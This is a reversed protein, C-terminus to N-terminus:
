IAHLIDSSDADFEAFLQFFQNMNTVARRAVVIPHDTVAGNMSLLADPKVEKTKPHALRNRDESLERAVSIITAKADLSVGCCTRIIGPVKQVLGLREYHREYFQQGMRKVGYFNLFAEAAMASLVVAATTLLTREVFREHPIHCAGAEAGHERKLDEWEKLLRNQVEEARELAFGAQERLGGDFAWAGSTRFPAIKVPKPSHSM